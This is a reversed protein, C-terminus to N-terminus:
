IIKVGDELQETSGKRLEPNNPWTPSSYCFSHRNSLTGDAKVWFLTNALWDTDDKFQLPYPKLDKWIRNAWAPKHDGTYRHVFRNLADRQVEPRLDSGKVQKMTSFSKVSLRESTLGKKLFSKGQMGSTLRPLSLAHFDWVCLFDVAQFFEKSDDSFICFQIEAAFSPLWCGFPQGPARDQLM